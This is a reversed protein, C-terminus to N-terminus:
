RADGPSPRAKIHPAKAKQYKEHVCKHFGKGCWGMLVYKNVNNTLDVKTYAKVDDDKGCEKYAEMAKAEHEAMKDAPVNFFKKKCETLKQIMATNTTEPKCVAAKMQDHFEHWAKHTAEDALCCQYGIAALLGVIIFKNM